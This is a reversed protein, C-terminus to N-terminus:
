FVSLLQLFSVKFSISLFFFQFHSTYAHITFDVNYMKYVTCLLYILEYVINRKSPQQRQQGVTFCSLCEFRNKGNHTKKSHLQFKQFDNPKLNAHLLRVHLNILYKVMLCVFQFCYVLIDVGYICNFM